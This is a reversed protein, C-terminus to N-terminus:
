YVGNYAYYAANEAKLEPIQLLGFRPAFYEPPWLQDNIASMSGKIGILETETAHLGKELMDFQL